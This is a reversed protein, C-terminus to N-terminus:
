IVYATRLPYPLLWKRMYRFLVKNILKEQFRANLERGSTEVLGKPVDVEGYRFRQLVDIIDQREGIYEIVADQTREYVKAFTVHTQGHLYCLLIDAQEYTMRSNQFVHIRMRGRTEHKIRFKM